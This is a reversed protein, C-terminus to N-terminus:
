QIADILEQLHAPITKNRKIYHAQTQLIINKLKPDKKAQEPSFTSIMKEINQIM